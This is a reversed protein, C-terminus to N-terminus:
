FEGELGLAGLTATRSTIYLDDLFQTYMADGTLQLAWQEPQERSGIYWRIGFGGEGTVLPGLERDGTRYEPLSWGATSGSVYALQWFSVSTQAHLRLHPWLEFRKGLDFIWRFDTSSAFLGWSDDYVREEMRLTSGEFRHAYRGTLALRRRSLPLQELPKEPVRNANV